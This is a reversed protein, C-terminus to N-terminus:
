PLVASLEAPEQVYDRKTPDPQLVFRVTDGHNGFSRNFTFTNPERDMFPEVRTPTTSDNVYVDAWFRKPGHDSGDNYDKIGEFNKVKIYGVDYNSVDLEEIVIRKLGGLLRTKKTVKM